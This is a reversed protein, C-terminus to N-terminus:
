GRRLPVAAARHLQGLARRVRARRGGVRDAADAAAGRAVLRAAPRARELRAADILDRPIGRASWYCLLVLLPSTGVLAPAILPVYTDLLGLSRFIAFRPVWLASAPITLCVLTFGLAIGHWPRGLRTMAFGTSRRASVTLPVAIAVILLSNLLQRGLPM